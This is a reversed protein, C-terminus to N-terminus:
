KHFYEIMRYAIWLAFSGIAQLVIVGGIIKSKDQELRVLRKDIIDLEAAKAYKEELDHLSSLMETQKVQLIRLADRVDARWEKELELREDAM